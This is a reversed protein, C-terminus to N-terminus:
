MLYGQVSISKRVQYNKLWFLFDGKIKEYMATVIGLEAGVSKDREDYALYRLAGWVLMEQYPVPIILDAEGTTGDVLTEPNPIYDVSLTSNDAPYAKITSFGSIYFFSPFGTADMSPYLNRLTRLDTPELQRSSEDTNFVADVIFPRTGLTGSGSTLAVTQNQLLMTPYNKAVEGYIENYTSQIYGLYIARLTADPTDENVGLKAVKDIMEAISPM